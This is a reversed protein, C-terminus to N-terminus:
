KFKLNNKSNNEIFEKVLMYRLENREDSTSLDWGFAVFLLGELNLLFYKESNDKNIKITVMNKEEMFDLNRYIFSEVDGVDLSYDVIETVEYVSFDDDKLTIWDSLRSELLNWLKSM